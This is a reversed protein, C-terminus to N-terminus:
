TLEDLDISWERRWQAKEADQLQSQQDETLRFDGDQKEITDKLESVLKLADKLSEMLWDWEQKQDILEKTTPQKM